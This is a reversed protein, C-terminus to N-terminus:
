LLVSYESKRSIKDNTEPNLDHSDDQLVFLFESVNRHIGPVEILCLM